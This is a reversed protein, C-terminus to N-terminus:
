LALILGDDATELELTGRRKSMSEGLHTLIFRGVDFEVRHSLLEELSLHFDLKQDFLTCESILLDAGACLRPLENFWGTDGTYM